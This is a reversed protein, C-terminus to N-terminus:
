ININKNKWYFFLNYCKIIEFTMSDEIDELQELIVSPEILSINNKISCNCIITKLDLDMEEFLCNEECLSYNQFFDIIRDELVIDDKSTSNSYPFCIDTFFKDKINFIDIDLDKFTSITSM